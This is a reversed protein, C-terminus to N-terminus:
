LNQGALNGLSRKALLNQRKPEAKETWVREGGGETEDDDKEPEDDGIDSVNAEKTDPM